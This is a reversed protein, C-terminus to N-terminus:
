SPKLLFFAVRGSSRHWVVEFGAEALWPSLDALHYLTTVALDLRDRRVQQGTLRMTTDLGTSYIVLNLGNAVTTLSRTAEYDIHVDEATATTAVEVPGFAFRRVTARDYSGFAAGNRDRFGAMDEPLPGFDHLRADLLLYDGEHMLSRINRALETEPYNGFTFGTLTFLRTAGPDRRLADVVSLDTFDGCIAHIPFPRRFGDASALRRVSTRLLEFSFDLGCYSELEFHQDLGRLIREDMAGDGPGLSTLSLHTCGCDSALAAALDPVAVGMRDLLELHGYAPDECVDLWRQACIPTSYHYFLDTRVVEDLTGYVGRPSTSGQAYMTSDVLFSVREGHSREVGM